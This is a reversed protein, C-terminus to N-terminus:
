GTTESEPEDRSPLKMRARWLPGSSDQFGDPEPEDELSGREHGCAHCLGDHDGVGMRRAGCDPHECAEDGFGTRQQCALCEVALGDDSVYATPIVIGPLGERTEANKRCAHCLHDIRGPDVDFLAKFRAPPMLEVDGPWMQLVGYAPNWFKDGFGAERDHEAVRLRDSLWAGDPWLEAFLDMLEALMTLPHLDSGTQGLHTYRNRTKRLRDYRTLFTPPLPDPCLTNVAQPLKQADITRLDFFDVPKPTTSLPMQSELLLLYPSVACLRAKLALENSQQIVAVTSQLDGQCDEIYGEMEERWSEPIPESFPADPIRSDWDDIVGRLRNWASFHLRLAMEDLAKADPLNVIM